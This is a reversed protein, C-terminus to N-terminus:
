GLTARELLFTALAETRRRLSELSAWELREHFHQGYPGLGDICPVGGRLPPERRLRRGPAAGRRHRPGRRARPARLRRPAGARGREGGHPADRRGPLEFALTRLKDPVGEHGAFPEAILAEMARQLWPGDEGRVFRADVLLRAREPVTNKATGGEFVGVNVTLGRAYDTLAELRPVLLALGHVASM